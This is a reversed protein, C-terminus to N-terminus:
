SIQKTWFTAFPTLTFKKSCSKSLLRNLTLLSSKASFKILQARCLAEQRRMLVDPNPEWRTPKAQVLKVMHSFASMTEMLSAKFWISFRKM